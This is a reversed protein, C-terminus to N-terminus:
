EGLKTKIKVGVIRAGDPPEKSAPPVYSGEPFQPTVPPEPSEPIHVSGGGFVHDTITKIPGAPEKGEPPVKGTAWESGGPSPDSLVGLNVPPTPPTLSEGTISPSPAVPPPGFEPALQLDPVLHGPAPQPEPSNPEPTPEPTPEVVQDNTGAASEGNLPEPPPAEGFGVLSGSQAGGSSTVSGDNAGHKVNARNIDDQEKIDKAM